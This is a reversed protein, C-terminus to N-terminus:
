QNAANVKAGARILLDATELDDWHVAWFLATAGDPETANVDVRQKLLSRVANQDKNRVAEVVRLDAAAATLGALSLLCVLALGAASRIRISMYTAQRRM